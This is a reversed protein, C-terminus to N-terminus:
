PSASGKVAAGFLNSWPIGDSESWKMRSAVGPSHGVASCGELRRCAARDAERRQQADSSFDASWFNKVVFRLLGTREVGVGGALM